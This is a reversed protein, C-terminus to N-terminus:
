VNNRVRKKGLLMAEAKARFQKAQDNPLLLFKDAKYEDRHISQTTELVEREGIFVQAEKHLLFVMKDYYKSIIDSLRTSKLQHAKRQLHLAPSKIENLCRELYTNLADRKINSLRSKVWQQLTAVLM